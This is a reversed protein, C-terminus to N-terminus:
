PLTRREGHIYLGIFFLIFVPLLFELSSASHFIASSSAVNCNSSNGKSWCAAITYNGEQPWGSNDTSWNGQWTDGDDMSPPDLQTSAVVNGDPAIILIRMNSNNIKQTAVVSVSISVSSNQSNGGSVDISIISDAHTPTLITIFMLTAFIMKKMFVSLFRLNVTFKACLNVM